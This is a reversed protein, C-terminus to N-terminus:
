EAMRWDAPRPFPSRQWRHDGGGDTIVGLRTVAGQGPIRYINHNQPPVFPRRAAGTSIGGLPFAGPRANRILGLKSPLTVGLGAAKRYQQYQAASILATPDIAPYHPAVQLVGSAQTYYYNWQGVTLMARPDNGVLAAVHPDNSAAILTASTIPLAAAIPTGQLRKGIPGTPRSLQTATGQRIYTGNIPLYNYGDNGQELVGTTTVAPLGLSAALVSGPFIGVTTAYTGLITPTITGLNIAQGNKYPTSNLQALLQQDAGRACTGSSDQTFGPACSGNARSRPQPPVAGSPCNLLVPTNGYSWCGGRRRVAGPTWPGIPSGASTLQPGANDVSNNLAAQVLTAEPSTGSVAAARLRIRGRVGSLKPLPNAAANAALTETQWQSWQAPTLYVGQPFSASANPTPGYLGPSFTTPFGTVSVTQVSPPAGSSEVIIGVRAPPVATATPNAPTSSSSGFMASIQPWFYFLAAGGAVVLLTDSSPNKQRM